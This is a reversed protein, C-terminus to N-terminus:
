ADDDTPATWRAGNQADVAHDLVRMGFAAVSDVPSQFQTSARRPETQGRPDGLIRGFIVEARELVKGNLGVVHNTNGDTRAIAIVRTIKRRDIQSQAVGVPL